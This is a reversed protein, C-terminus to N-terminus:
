TKKKWFCSLFFLWLSFFFFFFSNWYPQQTWCIWVKTETKMATFNNIQFLLLPFSRHLEYVSFFFLLLRTADSIHSLCFCFALRHSLILCFNFLFATSPSLPPPTPLCRSPSVLVFPTRQQTTISAAATCGPISKPSPQRDALWGSLLFLHQRLQPNIEMIFSLLLPWYTNPQERFYPTIQRLERNTDVDKWRHSSLENEPRNM